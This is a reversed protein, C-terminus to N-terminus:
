EASSFRDRGTQIEHSSRAILQNRLNDLKTRVTGDFVKDGIRIKLGGLLSPDNHLELVPDLNFYEHVRAMIRDKFEPSLDVASFVQVRLRRHREDNLEHLAKRIPRLLDLREHNNLVILFQHFIDSARGAFAKDIAFKRTKRGVVGGTLLAGLKRNGPFVDDILSDIEELVRAVCQHAEAANLLAEAYVGALRQASVDAFQEKPEIM